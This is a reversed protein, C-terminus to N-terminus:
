TQRRFMVNQREGGPSDVTHLFDEFALLTSLGELSGASQGGMKQDMGVGPGIRALVAPFSEVLLRIHLLMSVYM